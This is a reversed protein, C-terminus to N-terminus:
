LQQGEEHLVRLRLRIQVQASLVFIAESECIHSNEAKAGLAIAVNLPLLTHAEEDSL